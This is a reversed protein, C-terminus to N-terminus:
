HVASTASEASMQSTHLAAPNGAPRSSPGIIPPMTNPTFPMRKSTARHGYRPACASIPAMTEALMVGAITPLKV